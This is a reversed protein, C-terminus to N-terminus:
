VARAPMPRRPQLLDCIRDAFRNFSFEALLRRHGADGMRKRQDEDLLLAALVDGLGDLDDRDVLRGTQGDVIVERAADHISGICAVRHAMAELYVLGFGEGASPLAFLAASGYLSELAPKSVFGTFVITRGAASAAAKGKLRAADDGGGVIVLQADPVRAVVRPWVDILQDHGKYRESRNMRGVVLVVHRRLAPLASPPAVPTSTRVPEPPLALPCAEVWGVDPHTEMVRAATYHSNALRLDAAALLHREAPSLPKWAEIGHLFVGYPTRFARPVGRQVTALGLHSFLIWDSQRAIQTYAVRLAFQVKDALSSQTRSGGILTLVRADSPWQRQFVIWLLQAVVAVGGGGADLSIAALAPSQM